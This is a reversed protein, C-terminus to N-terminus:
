LRADAIIKASTNLTELAGMAGSPASTAASTLQVRTGFRNTGVFAVSTGTQQTGPTSFPNNSWDGPASMSMTPAARMEDWGIPYYGVAGGTAIGGAAANAGTVSPALVYLHRKCLILEQDFPRMIFPSRGSSPVEIGPLVVAGTIHVVNNTSAFFNTTGLSGSISGTGTWSSTGAETAGTGFNFNVQLGLTTDYSWGTATTDGLITVTKYEWTTANNITFAAGIKSNGAGNLLSLSATGAITAYAWFGVTVSQATAKGFDLRAVRVGEILHGLFAYDTLGLAGGTTAKLQLSNSYGPPCALTTTPVQQASLVFGSSKFRAVWGDIIYKNAAATTLTTAALSGLEQSLDMSGNTQMGNYALADFPAAYENTRAQVQQASTLAQSIDYRVTGGGSFGSM